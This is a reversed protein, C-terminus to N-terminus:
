ILLGQDLKIFCCWFAAVVKVCLPMVIPTRLAKGLSCRGVRKRVLGMESPQTFIALSKLHWLIFRWMKLLLEQVWRTGFCAFHGLGGLGALWANESYSQWIWPRLLDLTQMLANGGVGLYTKAADYRLGVMWRFCRSVETCFEFWLVIIISNISTPFFPVCSPTSCVIVQCGAVLACLSLWHLAQHIFSCEQGLEEPLPVSWPVLRRPFLKSFKFGNSVLVESYWWNKM